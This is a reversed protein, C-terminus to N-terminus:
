FSFRVVMSDPLGLMSQVEGARGAARRIDKLLLLKKLVIRLVTQTMKQGGCQHMGAGFTLYHNPNRESNNVIFNDARPFVSEDFMATKTLLCVLTGKTISQGEIETDNECLRFIMPAVPDFRLCERIIADLESQAKSLNQEAIAVSSHAALRWQREAAQLNRTAAKAQELRDPYELLHNVINVIASNLTDTGGVIREALILRIRANARAFEDFTLNSQVKLNSQVQNVMCGLLTTDDAKSQHAKAILGDLYGFLEATAYRAVDSLESARVINMFVQVFAFRTWAQLSLYPVDQPDVPPLGKLWSRPVDTITLKDFQSAIATPSLWDPGPIGYYYRALTLPIVRGVDKAVDLRGLPACSAIIRSIATDIMEEIPTGRYANEADDWIKMRAERESDSSAMGVIMNEGGTIRAIADKYPGVSFHQEDHLVKLVSAYRGILIVTYDRAKASPYELFNPLVRTCPKSGPLLRKRGIKFYADPDFPLETKLTGIPDGRPSPLEPAAPFTERDAIARLARLGPVFFYDGGRVTVFRTLNTVPAPRSPSWFSDSLQGENPANIPDRGAGVQGVLEGSNLWRSQVFEFQQDIRANLAVFLVGRKRGDGLSDAPLIPGGYTIGRRLLRHRRSENQGRTDRPNSRRIHASIPCRLGRPDDREYRFDNIPRNPDRATSEGPANPSQVLPTGDPWRGFMQAALLQSAEADASAKRLFNRLGVVDQELKRFVMYMGGRQLKSNCPSRQVLGDEDPYGLVFEGPALPAWQGNQRPTGGGPSPHAPGITDTMEFDVWPQSIGDRFGFHEVRDVDGSAFRQYNAVGTESHLIEIGHVPAADIIHSWTRRARQELQDHAPGPLRDEKRINWWNWWLVGHVMRSGLYGDWREPASAGVDGLMAARAAMGERFAEPFSECTEQEVELHELGAMTFGVNMHLLHHQPAAETAAASVAISRSHHDIRNRESYFGTPAEAFTLSQALASGLFSRFAQTNDIRFFVYLTFAPDVSRLINTQILRPDVRM